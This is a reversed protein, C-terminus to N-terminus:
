RPRRSLRRRVAPTIGALCGLVALTLASPEPVVRFQFVAEDSLLGEVKHTGSAGLTVFYDGPATFGFNYHSHGGISVSWADPVDESGPFGKFTTAIVKPNGFTDTQWLSFEGPGNVGLLAFEIKTTWDNPELEEAGFGVFPQDPQPNQNLLWLLEGAQNGLFDWTPGNPRPFPLDPVVTIVDAPDYEADQGVQSGNLVANSGFHYHLHLAADEYAVGIDAHGATYYVQGARSPVACLMLYLVVLAGYRCPAYLRRLVPHIIMICCRITPHFVQTGDDRQVPPRWGIRQCPGVAALVGRPATVRPLLGSFVPM